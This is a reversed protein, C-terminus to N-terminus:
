DFQIVKKLPSLNIEDFVTSPRSALIFAITRAIDEALIYNDDHDGPRFALETFFDTKVMGPNIITVRVRSRGCEERLAQAFGRLAFKSASYVAGRRGGSLAAESGIFIIDGGAHSKIAPLLSRTLLIQSTLNVNILQCIQSYSFEELSGFRGFGACCILGNIAPHQQGINRLQEPLRDLDALEITYPHFNESDIDTASFDRGIGIITYGQQLLLRSIARGIGNSAGSILLTRKDTM